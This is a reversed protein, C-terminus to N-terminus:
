RYGKMVSDEGVEQMTPEPFQKAKIEGKETLTGGKLVHEVAKEYELLSLTGSVYCIKATELHFSERDPEFPKDPLTSPEIGWSFMTVAAVMGAGLCFLMPRTMMDLTLEYLGLAVGLTVVLPKYM